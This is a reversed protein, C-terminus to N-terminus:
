GQNGTPANNKKPTEFPALFVGRAEKLKGEIENEAFQTRLYEKIIPKLHIDFLKEVTNNDIISTDGYDRIKLFYSHGLHYTSSGLNDLIFKNLDRIAKIYADEKVLSFESMIVEEKYGYEIWTFRRRLALDFSDISKDVDNMMGIFYINHPIGFLIEKEIEEFILVEQEKKEEQKTKQILRSNQLTILRGEKKNEEPTKSYDYRYSDELLMLTEGFVASLNARNIEDVIFYYKPLNNKDAEKNAIHVDICFQKFHGNVMELKMKGNKFGTPKIGDIFDEYTYNPHFVIYKYESENVYGKLYQTIQYTKGTGPPGHLITNKSKELVNMFTRNQKFSKSNKNFYAFLLNYFSSEEGLNELDKYKLKDIINFFQDLM